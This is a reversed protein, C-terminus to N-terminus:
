GLRTALEAFTRVGVGTAGPAYYKWTKDAFSTGAVDLHAWKISPDVFERLFLAATIAGAYRSKGSNDLDAFDSQLSDRYEEVLPLEFYDEGAPEGSQQIARILESDNGLIGSLSTGLASVVSGTLTAIDVLHTAGEEKAKAFADMLLLRGEADTNTVHVTKGNKARLIDGPLMADRGIENQASPVIGTVQIMPRTRAILQMAFLVAAGGAMDGKMEWMDKGPKLCYGGTDFTVAKGALVLHVKSKKRPRYRMIMMCPRSASAKGVSCIGEYGGRRLAKEDLVECQLRSQRCIRRAAEALVLPTLAAGPENVLDRCANVSDSVTQSWAVLSKMKQVDKAAAALEVTKQRPIEEEDVQGKYKRFRYEGM